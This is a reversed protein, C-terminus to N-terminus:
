KSVAPSGSQFLGRIERVLLFDAELNCPAGSLFDGLCQLYAIFDLEAGFHSHVSFHFRDEGLVGGHPLENRVPLIGEVGHRCVM